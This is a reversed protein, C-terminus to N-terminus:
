GPSAAHKGTCYRVLSQQSGAVQDLRARHYNNTAVSIRLLGLDVVLNHLRTDVAAERGVPLAQLRRQEATFAAIVAQPKRHRDRVQHVLRDLSVVSPAAQRCTGATFRSLAPESPSGPTCATLGGAVGSALLVSTIRRRPSSM